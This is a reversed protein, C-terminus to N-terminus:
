RSVKLGGRRRAGGVAERELSGEDFVLCTLSRDYTRCDLLRELHLFDLLNLVFRDYPKIKYAKVKYKPTNINFEVRPNKITESNM